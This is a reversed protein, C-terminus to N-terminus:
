RDTPSDDLAQRVVQLVGGAIELAEECDAADFLDVPAEEGDPYRSATTMRSLTKLRLERLPEVRVGVGALRDVLRDLSHSHPPEEGLAILLGKLAKEAAQASHYCCQAFFAGDRAYDAMALDNEAQKLWARLRPTM